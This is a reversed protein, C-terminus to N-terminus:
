RLMIVMGDPHYTAKLSSGDVRVSWRDPDDSTPAGEIGGSATGLVVEGSRGASTPKGVDPLVIRAGPSFTLKGEIEFQAVGVDKPDFTWDENVTVDGDVFNPWGEVTEFTWPYGGLNMGTDAAFKADPIEPLFAIPEGTVPHRTEAATPVDFTLLSGDGPDVLKKYDTYKRSCIGTDNYVIPLADTWQEYKDGTYSNRYSGTVNVSYGGYVQGFSTAKAMSAIVYTIRHPGPALSVTNTALDLNTADEAYGMHARSVWKDNWRSGALVLQGDIEFYWDATSVAAFAFTKAVDSNNWLYGTYSVVTNSTWGVDATTGAYPLNMGRQVENTGLKGTRNWIYTNLGSYNEAATPNEKNMVLPVVGYVLGSLLKRQRAKLASFDVVGEQVDLVDTGASSGYTLTGAGAKTLGKFNGYGGTLTSDGSFEAHPLSFDESENELVVKGDTVTLDGGDRPLAGNAHLHLTGLVVDVGNSFDNETGALHLNPFKRIGDWGQGTSDAIGQIKFGGGSVKGTFAIGTPLDSANRSCVITKGSQALVVPGAWTNTMKAATWDAGGSRGVIKGTNTVVLTWEPATATYGSFELASEAVYRNSASGGFGVSKELTLYGSEVVVNGPNEFSMSRLYSNASTGIYLTHGQLDVVTGDDLYHTPTFYIRADATLTISKGFPYTKLPNTVYLAGIGNMGFGAIFFRKGTMAKADASQMKSHITAGPRVHVDGSAPGFSGAVEAIYTGEEITITCASSIIDAATLGGLGKKVFNTVSAVLYAADMANTEGAPVTVTLERKEVPDDYSYLNEARAGQVGVLLVASCVSRVFRFKGVKM